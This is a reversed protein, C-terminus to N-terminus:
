SEEGVCTWRLEQETVRAQLRKMPTGSEVEVGAGLVQKLPVGVMEVQEESGDACTVRFSGGSTTTGYTEHWTPCDHILTQRWGEAHPRLLAYCPPESCDFAALDVDAECTDVAERVRARFGDPSLAGAVEDPWPIATGYLEKEYAWALRDLGDIESQLDAAREELAGDDPVESPARMPAVRGAEAAREMGQGTADALSVPEASRGFFFAVVFAGGILVVFGTWSRRGGGSRLGMM